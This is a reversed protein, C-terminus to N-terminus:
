RLTYSTLVGRFIVTLPLNDTELASEFKVLYGIAPAYWYTSKSVTTETLVGKEFVKKTKTLIIRHTLLSNGAVTIQETGDHAMGGTFTHRVSDNIQEAEAPFNISSRSAIPFLYWELGIYFDDDYFQLDGNTEYAIYATDTGGSGVDPSVYQTVDSKGAFTQRVRSVEVSDTVDFLETGAEDFFRIHFTYSSGVGPRGPGSGGQCVILSGISVSDGPALAPVTRTSGGLAAVALPVGAPVFMNFLGATAVFNSGGPWSVFVLSRLPRGDCDVVTGSITAGDITIIREVEQGSVCPISIVNSGIGSNLEPPVQATTEQTGFARIDGNGDTTMVVQGIRVRVGGAPKGSRTVVRIHVRCPPGFFVDCNWPTFHKVDGVYTNGSRTASGEEKWKGISEDFFWLPMADPASSQMSSPIPFTLTATSGSALQLKEGTPSQLEAIIVGYSQLSGESGDTRVAKVDGPFLRGFEPSDPNLRRALVRVQGTYAGGSSRQFGNAPLDIEGGDSLTVTGPSSSSVTAAVRASMMVVEIPTSGGVTPIAARTQTFYGTKTCTVLCRDTPVSVNTLMYLGEADTTASAGHGTVAVGAVPQNNEDLVRGSINTTTSTTDPATPDSGCATLLLSFCLFFLAKLIMGTTKM